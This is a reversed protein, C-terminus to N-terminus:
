ARKEANERLRRLRVSVAETHARLGESESLREVVPGIARLGDPTLEQVSITKQFASVGLGSHARAQGYTPLVHNTGSAYDGVSEPAWPGLFVSGANQVRDLWRRPDRVQLILHEPAYSNSVDLAQQLDASIVLCSAALSQRAVDRRPLLPLRAELEKEVRDALQECTTVLVVQSDPGHEAQSLLDAAVFTADAQEDAIVLVESPGAPMDIAAGDPDAAVQNKAETVWANGPGFIKHVQPISESGYAMAAIAQAGGVKFVSEIGCLDAALLVHPDVTGDARPPTCVICLECGAIAAPIGIMLLTSFLPASGGPVYAGVRPVAVTRRECRIGPATEMDISETKQALHFARIQDHAVQLDSLTQADVENRAAEREEESVAFRDMSVRDLRQSLERLAQDGGQRVEALIERVDQAVRSDARLAPRRIVPASGPQTPLRRLV